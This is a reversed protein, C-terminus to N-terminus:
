SGQARELIRDVARTVTVRDKHALEYARLKELEYVDLGELHAQVQKVNLEDYDSIPPAELADRRQRWHRACGELREAGRSLPAPRVPAAELLASAGGLGGAALEYLRALSEDRLRGVARARQRDLQQGIVRARRELQERQESWQQRARGPLEGLDLRDKIGEVM